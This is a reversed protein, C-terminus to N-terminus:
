SGIRKVTFGRAGIHEELTRSFRHRGEDADILRFYLYDTKAPRLAADIATLGPNAIPGPPLGPHLYTNYPDAIKLDRDYLTDPHPKGLVETIVYVVTACSQLAMGIRLRNEFVGAMLPAEDPLRYEREIISALIIRMHLERPSLAAVDAISSVKERFAAVMVRAVSEGGYAMPFNYTDPFLYGQLSTAPIGLEALLNPSRTALVFDDAKAIGKRDLLIAAQRLTYGEPLTFRVLAQRGSVFLDLISRASMGEQLEYTGAKLKADDGSIRAFARLLLSSRIIEQSELRGAVSVMSEGKEIAFLEAGEPVAPSLLVYTAFGLAAFAFVFLAAGLFAMIRLSRSIISRSNRSTM